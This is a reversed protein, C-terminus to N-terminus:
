GICTKGNHETLALGRRNINLSTTFTWHNTFPDYKEVSSLCKWGDSGAVAYLHDGLASVGLSSRGLFLHM